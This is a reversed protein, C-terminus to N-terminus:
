TIKLSAQEVYESVVRGVFSIRVELLEEVLHQYMSRLTRDRLGPITSPERGWATESCATHIFPHDNNSLGQGFHLGRFARKRLLIECASPHIGTSPFGTLHTPPRPTSEPPLFIRAV